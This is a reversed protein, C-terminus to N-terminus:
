DTWVGPFPILELSLLAIKLLIIIFHYKLNRCFIEVINGLIPDEMIIWTYYYIDDDRDTEIICVYM